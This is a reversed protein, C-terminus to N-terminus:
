RVVAAGFPRVLPGKLTIGVQIVREGDADGFQAYRGYLAVGGGLTLFVRATGGVETDDGTRLAVGGDLGIGIPFLRARRIVGLEPGATAYTGDHGWDYYADAYIGLFTRDRLRALSLEGGVFAGRDGTAITAGTTVGALVFWAPRSGISFARPDASAPVASALFCAVTPAFRPM